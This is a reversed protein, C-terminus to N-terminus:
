RRGRRHLAFLTGLGLFLVTAPEPVITDLCFYGPTNMGYDPDMDSSTLTFQLSKVEGLPTLDVFQWSNVIYDQSDDEFQFDALYFDVKGTTNGATDRGTISLMFWDPDTGTPGGFRKSFTGGQLMDYYTYTNNTVYLGQLIQPTSLTLTPPEQWGVYGVAYTKSKGQGSGAVASYQGALGSTHNDTRNSYVFGDWWEADWEADYYYNTKFSAGGSRFGGSGDSGNWYSEPPLPLNEFTAIAARSVGAPALTLILILTVWAIAAPIRRGAVIDAPLTPFVPHSKSRPRSSVSKM